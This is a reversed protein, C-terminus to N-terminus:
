VADQRWYRYLAEPRLFLFISMGGILGGLHAWYAVRFDAQELVVQIAPVLNSVLLFYILLWFARISLRFPIIVFVFTSIRGWPYLMLYAAMVGSIAGSAGIAPIEDPAHIIAHAVGATAACLLYFCLFRWHGCADEVRRGFAWLFLMNGLLHFLSGHLFASTIISLAGGGEQSWLWKPVLGFLYILLVFQDENNAYLASEYAYILVNIGILTLTVSSFGSYRNPEKDSLPIFM